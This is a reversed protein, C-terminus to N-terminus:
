ALEFDWVVPESKEVMDVELLSACEPCYYERIEFRDHGMRFPDTQRGGASLPRRAEAACTKYNESAHSLLRGCGCGIFQSGGSEVLTLRQGIRLKIKMDGAVKPAAKAPSAEALRRKRIGARTTKTREAEVGNDGIAVGYLDRAMERSVLGAEFDRWVRAPDRDLPDGYGGAGMTAGVFVDGKRLYSRSIGQLTETEADITGADNPVAGRAFLDQINTSRKIRLQNTGSPYGGYIGPSLPMEVGMCHAVFTSIEDVGHPTYAKRISVGGRNAGAGGGDELQHRYLYLIPHETEYSEVNAIAMGMSGLYGGTDIGDTHSRAGGAGAMTDIVIGGFVKGDAGTGFLEEVTMSGVWSAMAKARTDDSCALMRGILLGTAKGVSWSVSTTAKSCGAPWTCDVITGPETVYNVLRGLASPSWPIEWGLSICVYGLSVAVLSDRTCNIVAPAQKATGTFDFTLEDKKKTMAIRIPFVEGSYDLYTVHRWTGDPLASLLTRFKREAYDLTGRMALKVSELGYREVLKGLRERAVNCASLKARLDLAVSEPVRSLRLYHREIDKRIRFNEVIKVTPVMPAEGYIDKAGIQASGPVPGGVDLVHLEAGTWGILEGDVFFPMVLAVDNQHQVGLYVDNCLFADGERIGPNDTYTEMIDQVVRSMTTAKALSFRAVAVVDGEPTLIATNLDNAETAVTSGSVLKMTTASEENIAILRSRLIQFTVPDLGTDLSANTGTAANM